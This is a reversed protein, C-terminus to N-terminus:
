TGRNPPNIANAESAQELDQIKRKLLANEVRLTSREESVTNYVTFLARMEHQQKIAEDVKSELERAYKIIQVKTRSELAVHGEANTELAKFLLGRTLVPEGDTFPQFAPNKSDCHRVLMQFAAHKEIPSDNKKKANSAIPDYGYISNLVLGHQENAKAMFKDISTQRVRKTLHIYTYSMARDKTSHCEDAEINGLEYLMQPTICPGSSGYTLIWSTKMSLRPTPPHGNNCGDPIAQMSVPNFEFFFLRHERKNKKSEIILNRGDLCVRPMLVHLVRRQCIRDFSDLLMSIFKKGSDSAKFFIHNANQLDLILSTM